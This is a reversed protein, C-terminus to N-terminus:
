YYCIVMYLNYVFLYLGLYQYLIKQHGEVHVILVADRVADIVIIDVGVEVLM